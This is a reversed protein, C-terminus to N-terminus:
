NCCRFDESRGGTDLTELSRVALPIGRGASIVYDKEKDPIIALNLFTGNIPGSLEVNIM